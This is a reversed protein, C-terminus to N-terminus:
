GAERGHSFLRFRRKVSPEEASRRAEDCDPLRGLEVLIQALCASVSRTFDCAYGAVEGARGEDMLQSIEMGGEFVRLPRAVELGKEARAYSFDPKAYPDAHNELRMIRTRAVGLRVALGGMRSLSALSSRRGDYVIVSRDARQLVEAVADTTTSSTDAIVLDAHSGAHDLLAGAFPVAEEALEPLGCPGWLAIEPSISLALDAIKPPLDQSLAALDAGRKLGFFSYLNGNALDLDVLAVRMGWSAAVLAATAAIATKGVGGRGSCLAVLPAQEDLGDRALEPSRMEARARNAQSRNHQPNERVPHPQVSSHELVHSIGASKARAALSGSVCDVVLVVECACGDAAIAACLNIDSVGPGCFGVIAARPRDGEQILLSRLEGASSSFTCDAEPYLMRAADSLIERKEPACCCLCRAAEM